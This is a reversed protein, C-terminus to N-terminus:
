SLFRPYGKSSPALGYRNMMDSATDGDLQRRTAKHQARRMEFAVRTDFNGNIIGEHVLARADPTNM